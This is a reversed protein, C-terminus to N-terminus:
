KKGKYIESLVKIEAVLREVDPSYTGDYIGRVYGEKDILLLKESHIFTEDISNINKDYESADAAPLKYGKIALDYITKKDGTLFFWKGNKADYKQAFKQLVASSDHKPDVSHSVILVNPDNAFLSQVRSLNTTLKPCTTGCRTFFFDAVYIKGQTQASSFKKGNQDILEFKPIQHFVTDVGKMVVQGTADVEPMLYPLKYYNQGFLKLFVFIFTPVGLIAILIGVKATNKSM